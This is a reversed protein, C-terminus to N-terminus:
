HHLGQLSLNHRHATAFKVETFLSHVFDGAEVALGSLSVKQEGRACLYMVHFVARLVDRELHDARHGLSRRRVHGLDRRPRGTLM